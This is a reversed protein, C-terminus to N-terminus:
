RAEGRLQSAAMAMSKEAVKKASVKLKNSIKTYNNSLMPSPMNLYICMKKLQEHGAGIQRCAYVSRVNIDFSKRGGKESASLQKSTFFTKTYLCSTCQLQLLRALGKKEDDIDSLQLSKTDKCDPCCLFSFINSLISIDILRYGSPAQRASVNNNTPAAASSTTNQTEIEIIKSSSATEVTVADSPIEVLQSNSVSFESSLM